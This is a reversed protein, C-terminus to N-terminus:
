CEFVWVPCRRPETGDCDMELWWGVCPENNTVGARWVVAGDQTQCFDAKNDTEVEFLKRAEELTYKQKSVAFLWKNNWDDYFAAYSFKSTGKM